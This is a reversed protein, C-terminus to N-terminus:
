SCGGTKAYCVGSATTYHVGHLGELHFSATVKKFTNKSLLTQSTTTAAAVVYLQGVIRIPAAGYSTNVVLATVRTSGGQGPCGGFDYLGSGISVAAQFYAPQTCDALKGHKATQLTAKLAIPAGAPHKKTPAPPVIEDYWDMNVSGVAQATWQQYAPDYKGLVLLNASLAGLAAAGGSAAQARTAGVPARSKVSLQPLMASVESVPVGSCGYTNGGGSCAGAVKQSDTEAAVEETYDLGWLGNYTATPDPTLPASSMPSAVPSSQKSGLFAAGVSRNAGGPPVFGAGSCGAIAASVLLLSLGLASGRWARAKPRWRAPLTRSVETRSALSISM